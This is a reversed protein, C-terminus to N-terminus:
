RSGGGSQKAPMVVGPASSGSSVAAIGIGAGAGALVVAAVAVAISRWWRRAAPPASPVQPATWRAEAPEGSVAPAPPTLLTAPRPLPRTVPPAWAPPPPATM